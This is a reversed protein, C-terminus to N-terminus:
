CGAYSDSMGEWVAKAKKWFKAAALIKKWEKEFAIMVKSVTNRAVGFFEASKTVRAM